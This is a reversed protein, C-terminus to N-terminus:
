RGIRRVSYGRRELLAPLSDDGVLHAAGVAVLPKRDDRLMASLKGTWAENRKVLLADRLEPDAMIGTTTARELEELDGKLWADRLKGPNERASRAEIVVGALLDRQEGEPLTDFISLQVVAGEFEQIDRGRFAQIAARDVGNRPDDQADVQALALAAAWTETTRFREADLGSREILQSLAPRHSPPLRQALPPLDPSIALEAYIDALAQEDDLDAIEVVLFDAEEIVRDITETRWEVRNPLAHITGLMWGEIAGTENAIEYLPPNTGPEPESPQEACGALAFTALALLAM